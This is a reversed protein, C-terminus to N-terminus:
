GLSNFLDYRWWQVGQIYVYQFLASACLAMMMLSSLSKIPMATQYVDFGQGAVSTISLGYEVLLLMLLVPAALLLSSSIAQAFAAVWKSQMFLSYDPVWTMTPWLEYSKFVAEFVVFLAGMEILFVVLAREALEGLISSDVELSPNTQQAANAGRQNDILSWASSLSWFPLSLLAGLLLGLILEKGMVGMLSVPEIQIKTVNAWLGSTVPLAMAFCAATRVSKAMHRSSFISLFIVCGLFRSMALCHVFSLLWFPAKSYLM